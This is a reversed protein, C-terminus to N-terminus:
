RGAGPADADGVSAPVRVALAGPLTEIRFSREPPMQEGDLQWVAPADLEVSLTQFRVIEGPAAVAEGRGHHVHRRWAAPYRRLYDLAGDFLHLDLFGDGAANEGGFRFEGAYLPVNTVLLNYVAPMKGNTTQGSPEIQMRMRGGHPRLVNVACSYLYLPYGGMGRGVGLRTRLRNRLALIDADMGIALAGVLYHEGVRGLDIRRDVGHLIARAARRAVAEGGHRFSALGLSRAVNNATGLPLLGLRVGAAGSEMLAQVVDRVTGDGGGAVVLDHRGSRIEDRVRAIDAADGRTDIRAIPGAEREIDALVRACLDSVPSRLSTPNLVVLVPL